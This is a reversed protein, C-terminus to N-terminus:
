PRVEFTPTEGSYPSVAGSAGLTFGRHVIRYTGQQTGAGPTWGVTLRSAAAGVRQWRVLTDWDADTRVTEWGSGTWRQVELFTPLADVRRSQVTGFVNKPHGGWFAAQVAQGPLYVREGAPRLWAPDVVLDGFVPLPGTCAEPSTVPNLNRVWGNCSWCENRGIDLFWGAGRAECAFPGQRTASARVVPFVRECATSGTVPLVTRNYQAPCSWCAGTGIDWFQGAPCLGDFRTAAAWQAPIVQECATSGGIAFVTRNYNAPCSWCAGTGLDLFQGSPCLGSFKQAGSWAAPVVRECAGAADNWSRFVFKASGDPCRFCRRLIFDYVYGSPCDTGFFGSGNASQAVLFESYAPRECATSGDVAFITRNYGAPCSWCAGTLLDFFQGPGCGDQGHRTAAGFVSRAPRECASSSTVPLVTRNYGDPCKWCSGTLLDFFQGPGCGPQGHRTASSFESRAPVECADGGEVSFITRRYGAPCSWCYGTGVDWFQGEPCGAKGKFEAPRAQPLPPLDVVPDLARLLLGKPERTRPMAPSALREGKVMAAAMEAFRTQYAALTFAGFQTSAAEYSQTPLGLESRAQHQYEEYTTVYGSYDNALGALVTRTGAPLIGEVTKRLRHAAMGTFEAPVALIALNGIRLISVPLTQPTWTMGEVATTGTTLLVEKPFHRREFEDTVPDPVIGNAIRFADILGQSMAEGDLTGRAFDV